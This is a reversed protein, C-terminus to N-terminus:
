RGNAPTFFWDEPNAVNDSGFDIDGALQRPNLPDVLDWNGGIFEVSWSVAGFWDGGVVTFEALDIYLWYLAGSSAYLMNIPDGVPQDFEDYFVIQFTIGGAGVWLPQEEDNWANLWFLVESAQLQAPLMAFVSIVTFTILVFRIVSKM